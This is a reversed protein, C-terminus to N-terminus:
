KSGTAVLTAAFAIHGDIVKAAAVAM